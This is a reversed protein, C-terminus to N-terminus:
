RTLSWQTVPMAPKWGRLRGVPEARSLSVRILRGGHRDQLATLLAESELTVANAVLRGHASLAALATEAVAETLGGGIFIADPRPLGALAESAQGQRLDLRPAGLRRANLAAMALREPSPDIGAARM